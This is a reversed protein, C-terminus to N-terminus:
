HQSWRFAFRLELCSKKARHKIWNESSHLALTIVDDKLVARDCSYPTFGHGKVPLYQCVQSERVQRIQHLYSSLLAVQASFTDLRLLKHWLLVFVLVHLGASSTGELLICSPARSVRVLSRFIHLSSVAQLLQSRFSILHSTTPQIRMARSLPLHRSRAFVATVGQTDYHTHPPPPREQTHNM